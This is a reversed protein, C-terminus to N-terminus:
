KDAPCRMLPGRCNQAIYIDKIIIIIFYFGLVASALSLFTAYQMKDGKLGSVASIHIIWVKREPQLVRASVLCDCVNFQAERGLEWHIQTYTTKLFGEGNGPRLDNSSPM